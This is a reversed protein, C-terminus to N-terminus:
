EEHTVCMEVPVWLGVCSGVLGLWIMIYSQLPCDFGEMAEKTQCPHIFFAPVDTIPHPAASIGGTIGAARLSSKHGDPVLYRYVADLDFANEGMPLDHLSFWLTPVAYTPHLHIEYTVYPQHPYLSYKPPGGVGGVATVRLAEQDQEEDIMATAMGYSVSFNESTGLNAFALSLEDADEPPRLLRLIELYTQGTTAMRRLRIKFSKRSPGLKARVYIQDFYHCALEFEEQTLFPWHRYEDHYAMPLSKEVLTRQIRSPYLPM